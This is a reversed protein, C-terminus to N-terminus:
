SRKVHERISESAEAVLEASLARLEQAQAALTKMREDWFAMQVRAMEIPNKATALDLALDLGSAMNARAIDNLKRNVAVTSQGAAKLSREMTDVASEVAHKQRAAADPSPTVAQQRVPQAAPQPIPAKARESVPQQPPPPVPAKAREPVPQRPPPPVPAKAREVAPQLGPAPASVKDTAAGLAAAAEPLTPKKQQSDRAKQYKDNASKSRTNM